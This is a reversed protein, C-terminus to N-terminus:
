TERKEGPPTKMDRREGPAQQTQNPPNKNTKKKKLCLEILVVGNDQPNMWVTLM